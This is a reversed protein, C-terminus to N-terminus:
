YCADDPIRNSFDLSNGKKTEGFGMKQMVRETIAEADIVIESRAHSRPKEGLRSGVYKKLMSESLFHMEINLGYDDIPAWNWAIYGNM